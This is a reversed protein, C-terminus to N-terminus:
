LRELAALAEALLAHVDRRSGDPMAVLVRPVTRDNYLSVMYDEVALQPYDAPPVPVPEVVLRPGTDRMAALALVLGLAENQRGAARRFAVVDGAGSRADIAADLLLVALMAAKRSLPAARAAAVASSAQELRSRPPQQTM